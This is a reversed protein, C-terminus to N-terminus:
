NHKVSESIKSIFDLCSNLTHKTPNDDSDVIWEILEFGIEKALHFENEWFNHPFGQIKNNIPPSLRGQM